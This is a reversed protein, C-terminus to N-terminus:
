LEVSKPNMKRYGGLSYSTPSELCIHILFAKNRGRKKRSVTIGGEELRSINDIRKM